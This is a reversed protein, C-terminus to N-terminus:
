SSRVTRSMRRRATSNGLVGRARLMAREDRDYHLVVDGEPIHEILDYSWFPPERENLLPANLDVGLDAGRASVELWFIEAPDGTWWRNIRAHEEAVSGARARHTPNETSWADRALLASSEYSLRGM